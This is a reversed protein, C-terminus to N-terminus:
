PHRFRQARVRLIAHRPDARPVALLLREVLEADHLGSPSDAMRWQEEVDGRDLVARRLTALLREREQRIGPCESRSLLPTHHARVADPIRGERLARDVDLFDARVSAHLRYPQARVVDTGVQVRLRHVEARVTMPKGDDGHMEIALEEATLGAPNLALLVIMEAHRRSLRLDRGGLRVSPRSGDLFTLELVRGGAAAPARRLLYGDALPELSAESGDPLTCPGPAPTVVRSPTAALIRGSSTVLARDTGALHGHREVLRLDRQHMRLRLQGEALRAAASVVAITAPHFGSVPGTVDVAGVVRGTDPDRIPSAACTWPHYTRVLHEASHIQVARGAALATGMANTGIADESWRTGVALGVSEARLLVGSQGECWLLHGDADTVIMMYMAEDAVDVLAHRLLPLAEALPHARRIAVVQDREFVRPPVGRDPDVRAALSRRWSESVIPRPARAIPAGSLVADRTHALRRADDSAM